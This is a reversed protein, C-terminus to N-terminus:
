PANHERCLQNEPFSKRLGFGHVLGVPERSNSPGLLAAGEKFLEPDGSKTDRFVEPCRAVGPRLAPVHESGIDARYPSPGGRVASDSMQRTGIGAGNPLDARGGSVESLFCSRVM